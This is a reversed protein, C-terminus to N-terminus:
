FNLLQQQQEILKLQEQQKRSMESCSEQTALQITTEPSSTTATSANSKAKWWADNEPQQLPDKKENEEGEEIGEDSSSGDTLPSVPAELGMADIFM